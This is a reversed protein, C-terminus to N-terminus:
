INFNPQPHSIFDPSGCKIKIKLYLYNFDASVPLFDVLIDFHDLLDAGNSFICIKM